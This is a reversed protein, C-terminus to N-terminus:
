LNYVKQSDKNSPISAYMRHLMAEQSKSVNDLLQEAQQKSPEKFSNNMDKFMDERSKTM